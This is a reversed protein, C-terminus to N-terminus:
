NAQHSINLLKEHAKGDTYSKQNLTFVKVSKKEKPNSSKKNKEM